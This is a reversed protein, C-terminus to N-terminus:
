WVWPILRRTRARYEAYEPFEAELVQEEFRMRALLVGLQATVVLAAWWSWHQMAVGALALLEVLYLPHRVRAYPGHTVLRRAEPLISFSRGLYALVFVAALHGIGVLVFGAVALATSQTGPFLRLATPLVLLAPLVVANMLATLRPLLGRAKRVARGRFLYVGVLLGSFAVATARVLLTRVEAETATGGFVGPAVAFAQRAATFCLLGFYGLGLVRSGIDIWRERSARDM